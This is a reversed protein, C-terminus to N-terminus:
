QLMCALCSGLAPRAPVRTWINWCLQFALETQPCRGVHDRFLPSQRGLLGAQQGFVFTAWPGLVSKGTGGSLWNQFGRVAGWMVVLSMHLRLARTVPHTTPGSAWQAM